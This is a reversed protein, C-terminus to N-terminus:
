ASGLKDMLQGLAMPSSMSISTKVERVSCDTGWHQGFEPTPIKWPGMASGNRFVFTNPNGQSMANGTNSASPVAQSMGMLDFPDAATANQRPAANQAPAPAPAPADFGMDLLDVM